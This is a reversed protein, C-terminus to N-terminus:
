KINIKFLDWIYPFIVSISVGSLMRCVINSSNIFFYGGSKSYNM